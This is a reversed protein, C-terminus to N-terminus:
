LNGKKGFIKYRSETNLVKQIREDILSRYAEQITKGKQVEKQVHEEQVRLMEKQVAKLVEKPVNVESLGYAERLKIRLYRGLPMLKKGHRLVMPVDDNILEGGMAEAVPKVADAGIGPKRSMRAFEPHKGQLYDRQFETRDSTMKKTVYGCVYNASAISFSGCDTIGLGWTNRILSCAGCNCRQRLWVDQRSEGPYYWCPSVGFLIAHYHPRMKDDGYEGVLFYRVKSPYIAKRLRKLWDQTDKPDLSVPDDKYTLTVFSSHKHMYSELILRHKWLRKKNIRCPLCQGCGFALAGRRFPKKCIM